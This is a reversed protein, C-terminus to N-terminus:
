LERLIQLRDLNPEVFRLFEGGCLSEVDLHQQVATERGVHLWEDM